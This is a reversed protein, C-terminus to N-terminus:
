ACFAFMVPIRLKLLNPFRVELDYETSYADCKGIRKVFGNRIEIHVVDGIAVKERRVANFTQANCVLQKTGKTSKLKLTAQIVVASIVPNNLKVFNKKEEINIM